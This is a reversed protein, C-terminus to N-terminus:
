ARPARRRALRIMVLAGAAFLAGSAPEPVVAAASSRASDDENHGQKSHSGEEFSASADNPGEGADANGSANGFNPAGREEASASPSSHHSNGAQDFTPDPSSDAQASLAAGLLATLGAIAISRQNLLIM